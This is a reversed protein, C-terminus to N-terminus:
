TLKKELSMRFGLLLDRHLTYREYHKHNILAGLLSVVCVLLGSSLMPPKDGSVGFALLGAILAVFLGAAAARLTEHQRAHEAHEEYMAILFAHDDPTIPAAVEPPDDRKPKRSVHPARCDDAWSRAKDM